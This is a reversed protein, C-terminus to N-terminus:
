ECVASETSSLATPFTLMGLFPNPLVVLHSVDFSLSVTVTNGFTCPPAPSVNTTVYKGSEASILPSAVSLMFSQVASQNATPNVAAYRAAQYNAQGLGLAAAGIIAFQVGVLLLVLVLPAILAFEVMAQARDLGRRWRMEVVSGIFPSRRLRVKKEPMGAKYSGLDLHRRLNEDRAVSNAKAMHDDVTARGETIV